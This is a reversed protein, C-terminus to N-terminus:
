ARKREHNSEGAAQRCLREDKLRAVYSAASAVLGVVAISSLLIIHKPKM